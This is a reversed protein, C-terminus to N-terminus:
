TNYMGPGRFLWEEGARRQEGNSDKFNVNAKLLLAENIKVMPLDRPPTLLVEGPYLPFPNQKFRYEVDGMNVQYQGSSTKLPEGRVSRKVPNRIACYQRDNLCIMNKPKEELRKTIFLNILESKTMNVRM